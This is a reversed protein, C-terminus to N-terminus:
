NVRMQVIICLKLPSMMMQMNNDELILVNEFSRKYNWVTLILTLPKKTAKSHLTFRQCWQMSVIKCCNQQQWSIFVIKSDVHTTKKLHIYYWFSRLSTPNKKEENWTCLWQWLVYDDFLIQFWRLSLDYKSCCKCKGFLSCISSFSHHKQRRSTNSMLVTIQPGHMQKFDNWIVTRVLLCTNKISRDTSTFPPGDNGSVVGKM